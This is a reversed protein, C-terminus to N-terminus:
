NRRLTMGEPIRNLVMVGVPILIVTLCLAYGVVIFVASLWWGVLVFWVARLLFTRQPINGHTIHMVGDRVETTIHTRRPRLTLVTPVVNFLVYAIPLLIITLSLLWAVSLLIGTAWWGILIFWIARIVLGPGGKAAIVTPMASPTITAVDAAPLAPAVIAPTDEPHEHTEM